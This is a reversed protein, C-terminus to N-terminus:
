LPERDREESATREARSWSKTSDRAAGGYVKRKRWLYAAVGGIRRPPLVERGFRAWGIAVSLAFAAAGAAGIVFGLPFGFLLALAELALLVVFAAGFVTLPPVAVDLGLAVLSPRGARLGALVTPAAATRGLRLSGLEWRARQRTGGETSRVFESTIRAEPLFAPTHGARALRVTMALDEVIEGSGLDLDRAIAWPLAFGTTLRTTGFLTWLGSMRAQNIFRWAFAAVAQQPSEDAASMLNLGQVPRQHRDAACALRRLAGPTSQCDADLFVVVDPPSSRLDDLGAQLAFGKGKRGEDRRVLVRVGAARAIRETGDDCNDVVILICDPSVGDASLAALTRPLGAEENHAPILVVFQAACEADVSLRRQPALAALIEVLLFVALGAFLVAPAALVAEIMM